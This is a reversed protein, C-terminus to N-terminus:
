GGVQKLLRDIEDRLAYFEPCSEVKAELKSKLVACWIGKFEGKTNNDRVLLLHACGKCIGDLVAIAKLDEEKYWGPYKTNTVNGVPEPAKSSRQAKEKAQQAMLREIKKLYSM